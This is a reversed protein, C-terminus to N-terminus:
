SRWGMEYNVYIPLREFGRDGIYRAKQDSDTWRGRPPANRRFFLGECELRIRRETSGSASWPMRMMLGSYIAMPIGIPDGTMLESGSPTFAAMRANAFLQLYITVARERVRSKAALALGLMEPTAALDFTVQEASVQYTSSIPSISILDGLGQWTKQGDDDVTVLDGFGSWWRKPAGQFDMHVLVAQAIQGSRLVEDPIALLDDRAGM